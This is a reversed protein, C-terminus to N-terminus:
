TVCLLKQMNLLTSHQLCHLYPDLFVIELITINYFLSLSDMPALYKVFLCFSVCVLLQVNKLFEIYLDVTKFIFLCNRFYLLCLLTSTIYSKVKEATPSNGSWYGMNFITYFSKEIHVFGVRLNKQVGRM